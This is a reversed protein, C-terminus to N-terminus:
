LSGLVGLLAEYVDTWLYMGLLVLRRLILRRRAKSLVRKRM